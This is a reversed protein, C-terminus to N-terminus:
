DLTVGNFKALQGKLVVAEIPVIRSRWAPRVQTEISFFRLASIIDRAVERGQELTLVQEWEPPPFVCRVPGLAMSFDSLRGERNLMELDAGPSPSNQMAKMRVALQVSSWEPTWYWPCRGMRIQNGSANTLVLPNGEWRWAVQMPAVREQM